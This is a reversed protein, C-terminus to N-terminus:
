KKSSSVSVPLSDLSVNDPTTQLVINDPKLDLHAMGRSHMYQIASGIDATFKDVMPQSLGGFKNEAKRFLQMSFYFLAVTVGCLQL